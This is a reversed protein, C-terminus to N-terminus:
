KRELILKELADIQKQLDRVDLQIERICRCECNQCDGYKRLSEEITQQRFRAVRTCFRALM